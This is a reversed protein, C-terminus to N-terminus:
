KQNRRVPTSLKLGANWDVDLIKPEIQIKKAKAAFDLLDDCGKKIANKVIDLDMEQYQRTTM